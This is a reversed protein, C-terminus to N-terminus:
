YSDMSGESLGNIYLDVLAWAQRVFHHVHHQIVRILLLFGVDPSKPILARPCHVMM